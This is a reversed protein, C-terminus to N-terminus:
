LTKTYSFVKETFTIYYVNRSDKKIHLLEMKALTALINKNQIMDIGINEQSYKLFNMYNVLLVNQQENKQGNIKWYDALAQIIRAEKSFSLLESIKQDASFLRNCLKEIMNEAFSLNSSVM